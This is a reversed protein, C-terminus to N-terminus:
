ILPAALGEAEFTARIAARALVREAHRALNPLERPPKGWGRGWRVLMLLYPDVASYREGLLYPGEGLQADIRAFLEGLAKEATRKVGVAHAPDEVHQEPYFYLRMPAQVSCALHAVWRYFLAREPTGLAPALEAGPFRDVLHLVIAATEYVVLDGDVLTPIRGNPNLQLYAASRQAGADRDVLALEFPGGIERLLFHPTLSANGPYYHLTLMARAM